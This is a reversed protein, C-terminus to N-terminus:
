DVNVGLRRLSSAPIWVKKKRKSANLDSVMSDQDHTKIPMAALQHALPLAERSNSVEIAQISNQHQHYNLNKLNLPPLKGRQGLLQENSSMMPNANYSQM